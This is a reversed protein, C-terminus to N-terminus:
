GINESIEAIMSQLFLDKCAFCVQTINIRIGSFLPTLGSLIQAGVSGKMSTCSPGQM